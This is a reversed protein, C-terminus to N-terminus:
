IEMGRGVVVEIGHRDDEERGATSSDGSREKALGIVRSGSGTRTDGERDLEAAPSGGDAILNHAADVPWDGAPAPLEQAM